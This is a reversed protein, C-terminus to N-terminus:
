LEFAAALAEHQVEIERPLDCSLRNFFEDQSRLEASWKDRKVAM